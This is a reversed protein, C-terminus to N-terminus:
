LVASPTPVFCLTANSKKIKQNKKPHFVEKPKNRRPFFSRTEEREDKGSRDQKPTQFHM